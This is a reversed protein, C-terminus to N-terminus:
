GHTCNLDAMSWVFAIWSPAKPQMPGALPEIAAGPSGGLWHGQTTRGAAAVLLELSGAGPLPTTCQPVAKLALLAWLEPHRLPTTCCQLWSSDPLRPVLHLPPPVPACPSACHHPSFCQPFTVCHLPCTYFAASPPCPAIPLFLLCQPILPATPYMTCDCPAHPAAAPHGHLSVHHLSSSAHQGQPGHGRSTRGRSTHGLPCTVGLCKSTPCAQDVFILELQIPHLSSPHDPSPSTCRILSAWLFEAQKALFSLSLSPIWNSDLIIDPSYIILALSCISM